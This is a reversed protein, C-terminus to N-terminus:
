KHLSYEKIIDKIFKTKGATYKERDYKYTTELDLKLREYQKALKPNEILIDRFKVEEIDGKRRVHLHYVKDLFGDEGYGKVLFARNDEIWRLEWEVILINITSDFDDSENIELIIDIIDKSCINPIATSGIHYLNVKYKKLKSLLNIKEDEYWHVWERNHEVLKIPFKRKFDEDRLIKNMIFFVELFFYFISPYSSGIVLMIQIRTILKQFVRNWITDNFNSIDM